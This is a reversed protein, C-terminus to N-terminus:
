SSFLFFLFLEFNIRLSTSSILIKVSSCFKWIRKGLRICTSVNSHYVGYFFQTIFALLIATVIPMTIIIIVKMGIKTGLIASSIEYILILAFVIVMYKSHTQPRLQGKSIFHNKVKPCLRWYWLFVLTRRICKHGENPHLQPKLPLVVQWLLINCTCTVEVCSGFHSGWYCWLLFMDWYCRYTQM